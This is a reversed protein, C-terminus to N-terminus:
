WPLFCKLVTTLSWSNPCNNQHTFGIIRMLHLWFLLRLWALLNFSISHIQSKFHYTDSVSPHSHDRAAPSIDLLHETKDLEQKALHFWNEIMSSWFWSSIIFINLKLESYRLLISCCCHFILIFQFFPFLSYPSSDQFIYCQYFPHYIDM